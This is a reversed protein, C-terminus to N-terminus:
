LVPQALYIYILLFLLKDFKQKKPSQQGATSSVRQQYNKCAQARPTEISFYFFRPM